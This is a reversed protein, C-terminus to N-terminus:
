ILICKIILFLRLVSLVIAGMYPLYYLPIHFLLLFSLVAFIIKFVTFYFVTFHFESVFM